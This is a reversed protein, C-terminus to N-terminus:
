WPSDFIEYGFRELLDNYNGIVTDGRYGLIRICLAYPGISKITDPINISVIKWCGAFAYPGITELSGPLIIKTLNSGGGSYFASNDITVIGEPLTVETIISNNAFADEGIVTVPINDIRTPITISSATGKYGTITVTQGSGTGNVTFTFDDDNQGYTSICMIFFLLGAYIKKM